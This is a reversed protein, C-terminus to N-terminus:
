AKAWKEVPHSRGRISESNKVSVIRKKTVHTAFIKEWYKGQRKLRKVTDKLSSFTKM